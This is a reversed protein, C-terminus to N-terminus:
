DLGFYRTALNVLSDESLTRLLFSRLMDERTKQIPTGLEFCFFPVVIVASAGHSWDCRRILTQQTGHLYRVLSSKGSAAKGSISLASRGSNLWAAFVPDRTGGLMPGDTIVWRFTADYAEHIQAARYELRRFWSCDM